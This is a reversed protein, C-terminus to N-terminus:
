DERGDRAEQNNESMLPMKYIAECAGFVLLAEDVRASQKGEIVRMIIQQM